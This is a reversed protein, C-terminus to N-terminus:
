FGLNLSFEQVKLGSPQIATGARWGWGKETYSLMVVIKDLPKITGLFVVLLDAAWPGHVLAIQVDHQYIPDLGFCGADAACIFLDSIVSVRDLSLSTTFERLSFVIGGLTDTWIATVFANGASWTTILTHSSLALDSDFSLIDTLDLALPEVRGSSTIQLYEIGGPGETPNFNAAADIDITVGLLKLSRVTLREYEFNFGSVVRGQSFQLEPFCEGICEFGRRAGIYTESRVTVGSVTQGSVTLVAGVEWQLSSASGFNALLGVARVTVGGIGLQAEVIKKRLTVSETLTPGFLFALQAYPTVLDKYFVPIYQGVIGGPNPYVFTIQYYQHEVEVINRSFLFIDTLTLAGSTFSLRFAQAELGITNFVTLSHLHLGSPEIDLQLLSDLTVSPIAMKPQPGELIMLLRIQWSGSVPAGFATTHLLVLVSVCVFLSRM